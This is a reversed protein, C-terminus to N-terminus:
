NFYPFRKNVRKVIKEITKNMDYLKAKKHENIYQWLNEDSNKDFINISLRINDRPDSSPDLISALTQSVSKDRLYVNEYSELLADVGFDFFQIDILGALLMQNVQSNVIVSSLQEREEILSNSLGNFFEPDVGFDNRLQEPTFNSAIQNPDGNIIGKMVSEEAFIQYSLVDLEEQSKGLITFDEEKRLGVLENVQGKNEILYDAVETDGGVMAVVEERKGKLVTPLLEKNGLLASSVKNAKAAELKSNRGMLWGSLVNQAGGGGGILNQILSGKNNIINVLDGVKGLDLNQALLEPSTELFASILQSRDGSAISEVLSRHETLLTTFKEVDTGAFQEGFLEMGSETLTSLITSPDGDLLGLIVDKNALLSTYKGADGLPILEGILESNNALLDTAISEFDGSIVKEIVNKNEVILNTYYSASGGGILGSVQGINSSLVDQLLNSTDGTALKAIVTSNNTLAQTLASSKTGVFETTFSSVNSSILDFMLGQTNGAIVNDVIRANNQILQTVTPNIKLSSSLFSANNSVLEGFLNKTDGQAVRMVTKSNKVALEAVKKWKGEPLMSGALEGLASLDGTKLKQYFEGPNTVINIIAQPDKIFKLADLGPVSGSVSSLALSGLAKTLNQWGTRQNDVQIDFTCLIVADVQLIQALYSPPFEGKRTFYGIDQLIKNTIRIDQLYVESDYNDFVDWFQEQLMKGLMQETEFQELAEEETLEKPVVYSLHSNFPLIAIHLHEEISERLSPHEYVVDNQKSQLLSLYNSAVNVAIGVQANTSLSFLSILVAISVLKIKDM